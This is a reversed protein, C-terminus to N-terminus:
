PGARGRAEGWRGPPTWNRPVKGGPRCVEATFAAAAGWGDAFDEAVTAARRWGLRRYAYGALGAQGQEFDPFFRYLNPVPRQMTAEEAWSSAALFPVTPYRRALERLVIADSYGMGGIVADVHEVEVLRRTERILRTYLGNESCGEVLEVPRGAVKAASVGSAPGAGLLHARREI